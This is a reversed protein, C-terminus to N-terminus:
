KDKSIKGNVLHIAVLYAESKNSSEFSDMKGNIAALTYRYATNDDPILSVKGNTMNATIHYHPEDFELKGNSGDISLKTDAPVLLSCKVWSLQSLDFAVGNKDAIPKPSASTSGRSSCNWSFKQENTNSVEIKGNIFKISINQGKTIPSSGEISTKTSYWHDGLSGSIFVKGAEGDVEILGGLLSVKEKLDDVHLLPTARTILVGVFVLIMAFTGLFGIVVWKVVPSIPPKIPKLGREILYRNAVTEPEGLAALVTDLRTQPDRELASLIHSKIETIIEARDSVPFPRLAQELSTLYNELRPDSTMKSM